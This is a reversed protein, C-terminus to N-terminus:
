ADGNLFRDVVFLVDFTTIIGKVKKAHDAVFIHHLGLKVMKRVVGALPTEPRVDFVMPTMWQEITVEEPELHFGSPGAKGPMVESLAAHKDKETMLLNARERQYRALDTTTIVGMAVGDMDVVLASGIREEEFIKAVDHISDWVHVERVPSTMVDSAKLNVLVNSNIVRKM